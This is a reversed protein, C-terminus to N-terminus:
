LFAIFCTELLYRPVYKHMSANHPALRGLRAHQPALAHPMNPCLLFAAATIKHDVQLMKLEVGEDSKLRRAQHCQWVGAILCPGLRCPVLRCVHRISAPRRSCQSCIRTLSYQAQLQATKALGHSVVWDGYDMCRPVDCSRFIQARRREAMSVDYRDAIVAEQKLPYRSWACWNGIPGERWRYWGWSGGCRICATGGRHICAIAIYHFQNVSTDVLTRPM